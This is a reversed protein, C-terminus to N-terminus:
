ILESTVRPVGLIDRVAQLGNRHYADALTASEDARDAGLKTATLDRGTENLDAMAYAYVARRWALTLRTENGITAAPVAKLTAYGAAQQTEQWGDLDKFATLMAGEIAMVLRPDTVTGGSIKMTDRADNLDIDPWFPGCKVKAGAPSAEEPPSAIFSM